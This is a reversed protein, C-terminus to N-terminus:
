FHLFVLRINRLFSAGFGSTEWGSHAAPKNLESGSWAPVSAPLIVLVILILFLHTNLCIFKKFGKATQIQEVLRQLPLVSSRWIKVFICVSIAYGIEEQVYNREEKSAAPVPSLKNKWTPCKNPPCLLSTLKRNQKSPASNKIMRIGELCSSWIWSGAASFGKDKACVGKVWSASLDM